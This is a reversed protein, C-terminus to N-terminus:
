AEFVVCVPDGSAGCAPHQMERAVGCSIECTYVKEIGSASFCGPVLSNSERSPSRCISWMSCVVQVPVGLRAAGRSAQRCGEPHCQGACCVGASVELVAFPPYPRFLPDEAASMYLLFMM